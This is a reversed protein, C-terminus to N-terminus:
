RWHDVLWSEKWGPLLRGGLGTRQPGGVLRCLSASCFVTCDHALRTRHYPVYRYCAAHGIWNILCFITIQLTISKNEHTGRTFLLKAAAPFYVGRGPSGSNALIADCAPVCACVISHQGDKRRHRLAPQQIYTASFSPQAAGRCFLAPTNDAHVSASRQDITGALMGVCLIQDEIVILEFNPQAELTWEIADDAIVGYEGFVNSRQQCTQSSEYAGLSREYHLCNM